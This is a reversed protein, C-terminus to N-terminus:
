KITFKKEFHVIDLVNRVERNANSIIIEGDNKDFYKKMILLMGLASSDILTCDQLNIIIDYHRYADNSYKERFDNYVSFNFAGKVSIRLQNNDDDAQLFVSM